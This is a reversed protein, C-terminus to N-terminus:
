NQNAMLIGGIVYQALLLTHEIGCLVHKAPELFDIKNGEFLLKDGGWIQVWVLSM